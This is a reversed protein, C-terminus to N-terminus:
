FGNHKPNSVYCCLIFDYCWRTMEKEREANIRYVIVRETLMREENM